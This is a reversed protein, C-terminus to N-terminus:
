LSIYLNSNTERDSGRESDCLTWGQTGFFIILVKVEFMDFERYTDVDGLSKYLDHEMTVKFM